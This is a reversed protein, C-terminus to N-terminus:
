ERARMAQELREVLEGKLGTTPEGLAALEDKLESVKLAELDVPVAAAAAPPPSPAAGASTFVIDEGLVNRAREAPTLAADADCAGGTSLRRDLASPWAREINDTTKQVWDESRVTALLLYVTPGRM